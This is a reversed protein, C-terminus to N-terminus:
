PCFGNASSRGPFDTDSVIIEMSVSSTRGSEIEYMHIYAMGRSGTTGMKVKSVFAMGMAVKSSSSVITTVLSKTFRPKSLQVQTDIDPNEEHPYKLITNDDILGLFYSFSSAIIATVGPAYYRIIEIELDPAM